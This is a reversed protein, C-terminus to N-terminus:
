GKKGCVDFDLSMIRRGNHQVGLKMGWLPSEYNHHEKLDDYSLNIWGELLWGHMNVPRKQSDVNFLLYGDDILLKVIEM